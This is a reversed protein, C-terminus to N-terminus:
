PKRPTLWEPKSIIAGLVEDKPGAGPCTVRVVPQGKAQPLEREVVAQELKLASACTTLVKLGPTIRGSRLSARPVTVVQDDSLRKVAGIAEYLGYGLENEVM